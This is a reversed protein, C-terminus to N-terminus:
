AHLIVMSIPSCNWYAAEKSSLRSTNIYINKTQKKFLHINKQQEGLCGSIKKKAYCKYVKLIEPIPLIDILYFSHKALISLCISSNYYALFFLLVLPRSWGKLQRGHLFRGSWWKLMVWIWCTIIKFTRRCEAAWHFCEHRRRATCPSQARERCKSFPPSSNPPLDAFTDGRLARARVRSTTDYRTKCVQQSHCGGRPLSRRELVECVDLCVTLYRTRNNFMSECCETKWRSVNKIICLGGKISKNPIPNFHIIM